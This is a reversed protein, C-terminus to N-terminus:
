LPQISIKSLFTVAGDNTYRYQYLGDKAVVMAINNDTIVDYTELGSITKILKIDDAKSANFVKLGDAGDCIFLLTGSKSLGHPNTLPYSKLLKPTSLNAIDLVDLQNTFGACTTGSRLTVYAFEDDAIVPDCVRVHSFMSLQNPQAPNSTGYIFMGSGSGIFLNNKFPYITEVNWGIAVKNALTPDQPQQINFVNLDSNTVTYLYDNFLCFRAMSGSIGKVGPVASSSSLALADTFFVGRPFIWNGTCEVTTDKRIWDVIVKNNDPVFGNDYRRFPFADDIIKKVVVADPNSIDLTVMDSYLDAYLTTGKVALDINGPINIFYKNLPKAPNSNDIIHIGKDVENLFIYNGLVFMKGPKQVTKPPSNKINSRVEATTKYIPTMMTFRRTCTDKVCSQMSFAGVLIIIIGRLGPYFQKM